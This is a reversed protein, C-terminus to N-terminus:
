EKLLKIYWQNNITEDTIDINYLEDNEKIEGWYSECGFIIENLEPVYIAPNGIMSFTLEKTKNNYSFNNDLPFNYDILIGIYTKNNYKDNCPRIRVLTPKLKKNNLSHNKIVINEVNLPYTIYRCNFEECNKGENIEIEAKRELEYMERYSLNYDDKDKDYFPEKMKDLMKKKLCNDNNMFFRYKCNSCEKEYETKTTEFDNSFQNLTTSSGNISEIEIKKFNESIIVKEFEPKVILELENDIKNKEITSSIQHLFEYGKDTKNVQIRQKKNFIKIDQIIM